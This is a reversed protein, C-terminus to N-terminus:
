TQLERLLAAYDGRKDRASLALVTSYCFSVVRAEEKTWGSHKAHTKEEECCGGFLEAWPDADLAGKYKPDDMSSLDGDQM